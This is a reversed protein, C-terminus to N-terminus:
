QPPAETMGVPVWGDDLVMKQGEASLAFAVFEQAQPRSLPGTLLLLPRKLTYSGNVAAEPSPLVGNIAVVKVESGSLHGFGVYGIAGQTNAVHVHVEGATAQTVATGTPEAGGLVIEDFAGRTGSTVERVVPVIPMDAGGVQNWNTITGLYIDRLQELSIQEVPNSPHVIIALVDIAIQHIGMGETKEEEKLERSAMGIDATGNQIAEIGVRSGGAGIELEVGPYRLQYIRGIEQALPQVTTSGAFTLRVSPAMTPVPSPEESEGIQFGFIECGNLVVMLALIGAVRWVRRNICKM